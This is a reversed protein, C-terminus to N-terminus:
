EEPHIAALAEDRTEHITLISGLNALTVIRQVAYAGSPVVVHLQGEREVQRRHATLLLAIVTSDIFTCDSLDVVVYAHKCATALAGAVESKTSLDHEGRLTAVAVSASLAEVESAPRPRPASERSDDM